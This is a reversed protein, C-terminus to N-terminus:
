ISIKKDLQALWEALPVVERKPEDFTSSSYGYLQMHRRRQIQRELKRIEDQLKPHALQREANPMWFGALATLNENITAIKGQIIELSSQLEAREGEDGDLEGLILQINMASRSLHAKLEFWEIAQQHTKLDAAMAGELEALRQVLQGKRAQLKEIEGEFRQAFFADLNSEAPRKQGGKKFPKDQPEQFAVPDKPPTRSTTGIDNEVHHLAFVPSAFMSAVCILLLRLKKICVYNM